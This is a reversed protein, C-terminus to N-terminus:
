CLLLDSQWPVVSLDQDLGLLLLIQSSSQDVQLGRNVVPLRLPKLVDFMAPRMNIVRLLLLYVLLVRDQQLLHQFDDLPLISRESLTIRRM